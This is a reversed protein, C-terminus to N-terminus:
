SSDMMNEVHSQQYKEECITPNERAISSMYQPQPSRPPSAYLASAELVERRVNALLESMRQARLATLYLGAVLFLTALAFVSAASFLGERISYCGTRQKTWNKLLGSEVSLASISNRKLPVIAIPKAAYAGNSSELCYSPNLVLAYSVFSLM